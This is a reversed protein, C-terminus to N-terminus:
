TVVSSLDLKGCEVLGILQRLETTLHDSVGIVEAERNLLDHYPSFSLQRDTLGALAARVQVLVDQPGPVPRAVSESVLAHGPQLLRVAKV